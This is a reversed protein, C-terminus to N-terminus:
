KFLHKKVTNIIDEVQAMAGMGIDNCALKKEIPAIIEAGRAKMQSLQDATPPNEWMFTNMAPCLLLPRQWDWARIVSTLLNDCFGHTIKALTNADLPATLMCDAWRRLEIHVIPDGVQYSGLLPPWEYSDRLVPINLDAFRQLESHFFYEAHQTTVIKVNAFECLAEALVRTKIAAVSATVGLILNKKM